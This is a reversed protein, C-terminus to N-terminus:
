IRILVVSRHAATSGRITSKGLSPCMKRIERCLIHRLTRFLEERKNLYIKFRGFSSLRQIFFLDASTTDEFHGKNPPVVTIKVPESLTKKVLNCTSLYIHMHELM